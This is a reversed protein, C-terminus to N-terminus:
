SETYIAPAGCKGPHLCVASIAPIRHGRGAIVFLYRGSPALVCFEFLDTCVVERFTQHNKKDELTM